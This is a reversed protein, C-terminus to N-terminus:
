TQPKVHCHLEIAECTCQSIVNVPIRPMLNNRNKLKWWEAAEETQVFGQFIQWLCFFVCLGTSRGNRQTQNTRAAWSIQYSGHSVRRKLVSFSVFVNLWSIQARFCFCTILARFCFRQKIKIRVCTKAPKIISFKRRLKACHMQRLADMMEDRFFLVM